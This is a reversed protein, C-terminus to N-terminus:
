FLGEYFYSAPVGLVRSIRCIEIIDIEEINDEYNEIKQESVELIVSLEAQTKNVVTRLERLRKGMSIDMSNGM